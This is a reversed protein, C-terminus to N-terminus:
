RLQSYPTNKYVHASYASLLSVHKGFSKNFVGRTPMLCATRAVQTSPHKPPQPAAAPEPLGVQGTSKLLETNKDPRKIASQPPQLHIRVLLGCTPEDKPFLPFLQPHLLKLAAM